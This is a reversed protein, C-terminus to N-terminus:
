PNAPPTESTKTKKEGTKQFKLNGLIKKLKVSPRFLIRTATVSTASVEESTDAGSGSVSIKFTGVSGLQLVSGKQLHRMMAKELGYLVALCDVSNLTTADSLEDAIEEWGIKPGLSIAPYYKFEADRDLPNIRQITKLNIM